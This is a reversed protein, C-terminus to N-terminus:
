IAPRASCVLIAYRAPRNVLAIQDNCDGITEAAHSPASLRCVDGNLREALFQDGRGNMRILQSLGCEFGVVAYSSLLRSVLRETM